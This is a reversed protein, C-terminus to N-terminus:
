RKGIRKRVEGLCSVVGLGTIWVDRNTDAM